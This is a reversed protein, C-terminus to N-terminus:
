TTVTMVAMRKGADESEAIATAPVAEAEPAIEEDRVSLRVSGGVPSGGPPTAVDRSPRHCERDFPCRM